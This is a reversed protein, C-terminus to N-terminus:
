GCDRMSCGGQGKCDNKGKCAHKDTKCGGKGKCDNKGKCCNKAGAETAEATSAPTASPGVRGETSAGKECGAILGGIASLLLTYGLRQNTM